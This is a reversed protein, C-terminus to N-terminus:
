RPCHAVVLGDLLLNFDIELYIRIQVSKITAYARMRVRSEKGYVVATSLPRSILIAM